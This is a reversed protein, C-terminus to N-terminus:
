VAPQAGTVGTSSSTTVPAQLANMLAVVGDVMQSIAQNLGSPDVTVKSGAAQMITAVMPAITPVLQQM